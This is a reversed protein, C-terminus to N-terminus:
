ANQHQRRVWASGMKAPNSTAAKSTAFRPFIDNGIQCHEYNKFAPQFKPYQDCYIM